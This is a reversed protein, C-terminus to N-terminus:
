LSWYGLVRVFSEFGLRVAEGVLMEEDRELSEETAPTRARALAAVQAEGLEGAM